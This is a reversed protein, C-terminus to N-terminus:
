DETPTVQGVSVTVFDNAMGSAPEHGPNAHGSLSVNFQKGDGGVAQSEIIDKAAAKAVRLQAEGEESIDSSPETADIAQFIAPAERPETHTSWSM